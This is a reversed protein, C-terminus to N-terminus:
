HYIKSTVKQLCRETNRFDNKTSQSSQVKPTSFQDVTGDGDPQFLSFGEVVAWLCGCDYVWRGTFLFYKRNNVGELHMTQHEILVALFPYRIKIM